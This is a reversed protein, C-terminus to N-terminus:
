FIEFFQIILYLSFSYIGRYKTINEIKNNKSLGKKAGYEPLIQPFKEFQRTSKFLDKFNLFDCYLRV